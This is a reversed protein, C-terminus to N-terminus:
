VVQPLNESMQYIIVPKHDRLPVKIDSLSAIDEVCQMVIHDPVRKGKQRHKDRRLVHM